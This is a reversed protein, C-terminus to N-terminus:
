FNSPDNKTTHNHYFPPSIQIFEAGLRQAARALEILERTNTTQAGMVVPIQGDAADVVTEAVQCRESFSMTSFDGAAGGALVVGTGERIGGERLFQVHRRMAPLDLELDDDRFMTPVTVYCGTLRNRATERDM